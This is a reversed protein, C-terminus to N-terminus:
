GNTCSAPRMDVASVVLFGAETLLGATSVLLGSPL